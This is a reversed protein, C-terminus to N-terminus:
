KRIWDRVTVTLIRVLQERMAVDLQAANSIREVIAEGNTAGPLPLGRRAFRPQVLTVRLVRRRTQVNEIQAANASM